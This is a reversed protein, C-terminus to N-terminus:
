KQVHQISYSVSPPVFCVHNVSQYSWVLAISVLISYSYLNRCLRSPRIRPSRWRCSQNQRIQVSRNFVSGVYSCFLDVHSGFFTFSDKSSCLTNPFAGADPHLHFLHHCLRSWSRFAYWPPNFKRSILLYIVQGELKNGTSIIWTNIYSLAFEWWCLDGLPLKHAM